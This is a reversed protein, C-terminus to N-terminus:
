KWISKKIRGSNIIKPKQPPPPAIIVPEEVIKEVPEVVQKIQPVQEVPAVPEEKLKVVEKVPEEIITQLQKHDEFIKLKNRLEENEKAIDKKNNRTKYDEELIDDVRKKEKDKLIKNYQATKTRNKMATERGKKLQELLKEKREPTMEKRVKKVKVKKPKSIYEAKMFDESNDSDSMLVITNSFLKTSNM